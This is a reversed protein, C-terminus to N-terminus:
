MFRNHVCSMINVKMNASVSKSMMPLATFRTMEVSITTFIVAFCVQIFNLSKEKNRCLKPCEDCYDGTIISEPNWYCEDNAECQTKELSDALKTELLYNADLILDEHFYSSSNCQLNVDNSVQFEGNAYAFLCLHPYDNSQWADKGTPCLLDDELKFSSCREDSPLCPICSNGDITSNFIFDPDQYLFVVTNNLCAQIHQSVELCDKNKGVCENKVTIEYVTSFNACVDVESGLSQWNSMLTLGCTNSVIAILLM